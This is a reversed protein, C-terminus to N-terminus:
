ATKPLSLKTKILDYLVDIDYPKSLLEEGEKLWGEKKIARGTYGSSYIIPKGPHIKEFEKGVDAGTMGKPLVVDSLLLDIEQHDKMVLVASPGDEVELITYGKAKLARSIFKMVGEDDEVLLITGTEKTSLNRNKKKEEQTIRGGRTKKLFLKFTTGEGLESYVSIHGGSQKVFGYVMSLGLGTGKEVGKTSFFPEFIQELVDASMGTGTDSVSVVVYNGPQIERGGVTTEKIEVEDVEFILRGGEPMADRANVTLNLICNELEADDVKVYSERPFLNTEIGISEDITRRLMPIMGGVLDNVEVLKPKLTQKRSFALLRHTLDGGRKTSKIAINLCERADGSLDPEVLELLQLSGQIATLLNNFDHAIGGSLNGVAEMKQAQRLKEAAMKRETIDEIIAVYVPQTAMKTYQLYVEIDYKSGDKRQHISEFYIQEKEGALLPKVKEKFKANTHGPSIDALTLDQLEEASYGLNERGGRNVSVFKFTKADLIYIENLSDEIIRGLSLAKNEALKYETINRATTVAAIVKGTEDKVPESHCEFWLYDGAVTRFRVDCHLPQGNKYVTKNWTTAMTKEDEPHLVGLSQKGVIDDLNVGLHREAAPTVYSIEGRKGHLMIIDSTNESLTKLKEETEYQESINRCSSIIQEVKGDDGLIPTSLAEFWIFHGKAHQLRFRSRCSIKQDLIDEDWQPKVNQLDRPHVLDWSSKGIADEPKIGLHRHLSPSIFSIISQADELILIDTGHDALLKYQQEVVKLDDETKRFNTVDWLSAVFVPKGAMNSSNILIELPFIEKNKRKGHVELERGNIFGSKGTKLYKKFGKSHADVDEDTMLITINQDILENEKYGFTKLLSKNVSIIKCAGDTVVVGDALTNNIVNLFETQEKIKAQAAKNQLILDHREMANTIARALEPPTMRGKALFGQAGAAQLQLALEYDELESLIVFPPNEPHDKDAAAKLVELGNKDSLSYDLLVCDFDDKSVLKLGEAASKAETISVKLEAKGLASKTLKRDIENDDILLLKIIKDTKAM